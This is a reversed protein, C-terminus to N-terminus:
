GFVQEAVKVAGVADKAYFDAQMARAYEETLAAGGVMVKCDPAEKHLLKVTKEMNQVTTTMLASLGCMKINEAKVTELIKEAPVDKGLDIVRYGYNELLVKVINKGIDHIDGEVTAMVVTGKSESESAAPMNAKLVEFAAKAANATMLLQPLFATGKEYDEGIKTLAPIIDENILDLPKKAARGDAAGDKPDGNLVKETLKASEEELGSLVAKYLASTGSSAATEGASSLDTGEGVAAGPAEGTTGGSAAGDGGVSAGDAGAMRAKKVAKREYGAYDRAYGQAMPDCGHLARFADYAERMPESGPNIIGASLGNELAMTFFAANIIERNPLGFSINSVGLVTHVGLEERVKRLAELTIRPQRADTSVSLTLTDILIDKKDIGYEAAKNIIRRAIEVRGESDSPIGNEDLTLAVVVGGYKQVLPLISELSEKKGSVSNLLPKGNYYRLAAEMAVPDSTDLELPLSTVKSVALAAERLVKPEDIEPLGVNLDLIAAGQKEQKLAEQQLYNLDLNRLAEKMKKKGTPNLREGIIVPDEGIEVATKGSTVLTKPELTVADSAIADSAVKDSVAETSRREKLKGCLAAIFAPTTGCCGGLVRAGANLNKEQLHAFSDPSIFYHAKGNVIQPLGANPNVCVPLKTLSLMQRVFPLMLDPGFSCNIGMVDVRLGELLATVCPIDAGCLMRGSRDITVTAVIPLNSHEKAALVAAKLEYTDSMTEILILDPRDGAADIVQAFDAYAEDFSLDGYPEMLRGIPGIDLAVYVERGEAAHDIAEEALDLAKDVLGEVTVGTGESKGAHVGFTNAKVIDCGAEIYAEHIDRVKDPETLNWMEPMDGLKLGANLFMTGYAGDFILPRSQLAERFKM